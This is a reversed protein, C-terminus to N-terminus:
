KLWYFVDMLVWNELLKDGKCYYVDVVWMDVCIGLVLMGFLGGGVMNLLNLWGFFCVFNGESFCVVYGNFVKDKM